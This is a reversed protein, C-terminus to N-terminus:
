RKPTIGSSQRCPAIWTLLKLLAGVKAPIEISRGVVFERLAVTLWERSATAEEITLRAGSDKNELNYKTIEVEIPEAEGLLELRVRVCRKKTDISLETMEGIGKLWSNSTVRATFALTADKSRRLFARVEGPAASRTWERQCVEKFSRTKWRRHSGRSQEPWINVLQCTKWSKRSRSVDKKGEGGLYTALGAALRDGFTGGRDTRTQECNEVRRFQRARKKKLMAMIWNGSLLIPWWCRNPRQQKILIWPITESASPPGFTPWHDIGAETLAKEVARKADTELPKWHAVIMREFDLNLLTRMYREFALKDGIILRRYFFSIGFLRPLRM